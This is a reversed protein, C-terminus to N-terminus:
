YRKEVLRLSYSLSELTMAILGQLYPEMSVELWVLEPMHEAPVVDLCRERIAPLDEEAVQGGTLALLRPNVIAALSAVAHAALPIFTERIDLRRLQQERSIGFPLFSIEGAFRSAGRHIHGDIMLGAGPFCGPIFTMVALTGPEEWDQEHYLGYVTLNMDNEVTVKVGYRQELSRGLPVGVLEAADCIHIVGEHVLGPIGVGVAKIQPYRGLLVGVLTDISEEDLAATERSRRELVRGASDAVAYILRPRKAEFVACICAIYSYDANYVFRRARRGGSSQEPEEELAEGRQLMEGLLTGCTAVSLGTAQSLSSKTGYEMSRLARRVLEENIKKLKISSHTESNM